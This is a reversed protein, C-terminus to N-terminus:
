KRFCRKNWGGQSGFAYEDDYAIQVNGNISKSAIRDGEWGSEFSTPVTLKVECRKPLDFISYKEDRKNRPDHRTDKEQSADTASVVIQGVAEEPIDGIFLVVNFRDKRVTTMNAKVGGSCDVSGRQSLTWIFGRFARPIRLHINGNISRIDVTMPRLTSNGNTNVTPPMTRVSASHLRLNIEGDHTGFYLKAIGTRTPPLVAVDVDILGGTTSLNVNKERRLNDSKEPDIIYTGTIPSSTEEIRVNNTPQLMSPLQRSESHLHCPGQRSKPRAQAKTQCCGKGKPCSGKPRADDGAYSNEEYVTCLKMSFYCRRSPM